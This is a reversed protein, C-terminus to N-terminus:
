EHHSNRARWYRAAALVIAHRFDPATSPWHVSTTSGHEHDFYSVAGGLEGFRHVSLDCKEALLERQDANTLAEFWKPGYGSGDDIRLGILMGSDTYVPKPEYGAARAADMLDQTTAETMARVMRLIRVHLVM